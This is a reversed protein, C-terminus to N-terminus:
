TLETHADSPRLLLLFISFYVWTAILRHHQSFDKPNKIKFLIMTRIIASVKKLLFLSMHLYMREAIFVM